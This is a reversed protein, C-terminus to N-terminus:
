TLRIIQRKGDCKQLADNVEGLSKIAQSQEPAMDFCEDFLMPM